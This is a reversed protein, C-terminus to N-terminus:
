ADKRRRTTRYARQVVFFLTSFCLLVVLILWPAFVWDPPNQLKTLPIMAFFVALTIVGCEVVRNGPNEKFVSWFFLAYFVVSYLGGGINEILRGDMTIMKGGM